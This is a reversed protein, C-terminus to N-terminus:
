SYYFIACLFFRDGISAGEQIAGQDPDEKLDLDEIASAAEQGSDAAALGASDANEELFSAARNSTM